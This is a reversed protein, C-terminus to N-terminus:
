INEELSASDAHRGRPDTIRVFYSYIGKAEPVTDILTMEYGADTPVTSLANLKLSGDSGVGALTLEWSAGGTVRRFLTLRYDRRSVLWMVSRLESNPSPLRTVSIVKPAEPPQSSIPRVAIVGTPVSRVNGEGIAIVRYLYSVDPLLGDDVLVLDKAPENSLAHAKASMVPRMSRLDESAKIDRTRYVRFMKTRGSPDPALHLSSQCDGPSAKRVLPVPPASVDPVSVVVFCDPETPWEARVGTRSTHQLTAVTWGRDNGNLELLHDSFVDDYPLEHDPTFVEAHALALQKLHVVKEGASMKEFSDADHGARLLAVESARMVQARMGTPTNLPLRYFARARADPYSSRQPGPLLPVSPPPADEVRTAVAHSAFPSVNGAADIARVTASMQAYGEDDFPRDIPGFKVTLRTGEGETPPIPYMEVSANLGDGPPTIAGTLWEIRLPPTAANATHELRGWTEPWQSEVKPIKGQRVHVEFAALDPSQEQQSLIWDFNINLSQWTHMDTADGTLEATVGSPAPPAIEDRVLASAEAFPSFRGWIDMGSVLWTYNGYAPLSRDTVRARHELLSETSPVHPLLVKLEEDEHHVPLNQSGDTRRLAYFVQTHQPDIFLNESGVRWSVEVEAQVPAPIPKAHPTAKAERPTAPLPAHHKIIGTALSAVSVISRFVDISEESMIKQEPTEDTSQLKSAEDMGHTRYYEILLQALGPMLAVWIWLTPFGASIVYDWHRAPPQTDSTMLGLLRAMNPDIAANYLFDFPQYLTQASSVSAEDGEWHLTETFQVLAQPRQSVIEGALFTEMAQKIREFSTGLYRAELDAAITSAPAPPPPHVPEDWPAQARPPALFLRQRAVQEGTQTTWWDPYFQSFGTMPLFLQRVEEWGDLGAYLRSPLWQIKGVVADKGTVEIHELLGGHLLLTDVIWNDSAGLHLCGSPEKFDMGAEAVQRWDPIILKSILPTTNQFLWNRVGFTSRRLLSDTSRETPSYGARATDQLQFDHGDNYYGNATVHGTKEKYAVVLLVYAAPNTNLQSEPADTQPGIEFYLPNDDVQLAPSSNFQGSGYAFGEKKRVTLGSSFSHRDVDAGLEDKTLVQLGMLDFMENCQELNLDILAPRRALAFGTRPFGLLRGFFWRLHHGDPLYPDDKTGLGVLQLLAPDVLLNSNGPPSPSRSNIRGIM